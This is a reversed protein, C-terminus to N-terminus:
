PERLVREADKYFAGDTPLLGAEGQLITLRALFRVSIGKAMQGDEYIREAILERICQQVVEVTSDPWWGEPIDRPDDDGWADLSM